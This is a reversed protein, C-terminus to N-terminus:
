VIQGERWEARRTSVDEGVRIMRDRATRTSEWEGEWERERGKGKEIMEKM